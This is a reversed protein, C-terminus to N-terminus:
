KYEGDDVPEGSAVDGRIGADLGVGLGLGLGVHQM